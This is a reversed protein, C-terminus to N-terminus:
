PPRGGPGLGKGLRGARRHGFISCYFEYTGPPLDSISRNIRIVQSAAMGAIASSIDKRAKAYAGIFGSALAVGMDLFTVNGRGAMEPTVIETTSIWGVLLAVLLAAIIGKLLTGAAQLMIGIKGVTLGTAFAILPTMLPAVLMAGIIVAGSNLTLGFAALIAAIVILVLYDLSTYSAEDADQELEAGEFQTVTPKLWSGLKQWWSRPLIAAQSANFLFGGPWMRLADLSVDGRLWAEWEAQEDIDTVALDDDAAHAIHWGVRSRRLRHTKITEPCRFGAM